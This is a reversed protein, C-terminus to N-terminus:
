SYPLSFFDSPVPSGLPSFTQHRRPGVSVFRAPAGALEEVRRVYKQANPHLDAFCRVGDVNNDPWGPLSELVPDCGDLNTVDGAPFDELLVGNKKYGVCLGVTEFGALVDLHGICFGTLGNIQVSYRLAFADLWGCRRPRGTTTGYEQGRERIRDGREDLLETPFAGAGVRTTYGKVVGLVQGIATPGIGTGICAGGAVPHSSTVIRIRAASDLDLLTAQAGEFLLKKARGTCIQAVLNRRTM